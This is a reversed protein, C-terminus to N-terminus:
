SKARAHCSVVITRGERLGEVEVWLGENKHSLARQCRTCLGADKRSPVNGKPRGEMTGRDVAAALRLALQGAYVSDEMPRECARAIAHLSERPRRPRLHPKRRATQSVHLLPPTAWCGGSGREIAVVNSWPRRWRVKEPSMKQQEPVAVGNGETSQQNSGYRIIKRNAHLRKYRAKWGLRTSVRQM